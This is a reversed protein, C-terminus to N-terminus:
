GEVGMHPKLILGVMLSLFASNLSALGRKMQIIEHMVVEVNIAMVGINNLTMKKMLNLM